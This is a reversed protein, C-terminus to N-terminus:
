DEEGYRIGRIVNRVVELREMMTKEWMIWCKLCECRPQYIAKYKPHKECKM